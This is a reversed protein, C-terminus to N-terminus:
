KWRELTKQMYSAVDMGFVAQLREATCVESWPGSAVTMGDSLLLVEDALESALNLDHLVGCVAHGPVQSWQKLYDILETQHRLDLHNTPEDLFIMGPEQAFTRALFVRQLQGGSLDSILRDRLDWLGVQGLVDEVVQRDMDGPEALWGKRLLHYRGMMVTDYVSYPFYASELQALVAMRSALEVPKMARVDQGESLLLGESALTGTIARILTTKGCGNPGLIVLRNGEYLSFSIDRIIDDEGYGARLNEVRLLEKKM